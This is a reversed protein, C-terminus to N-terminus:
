VEEGTAKAIAARAAEYRAKGKPTEQHGKLLGIASNLAELLDPAAAILMAEKKLREWKLPNSKKCGGNVWGNVDILGEGEGEFWVENGFDYVEIKCKGDKAIWYELDEYKDKEITWEKSM